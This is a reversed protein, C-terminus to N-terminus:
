LGPDAQCRTCCLRVCVHVWMSVHVCSCMHVCVCMCMCVRKGPLEWKVRLEGTGKEAVEESRGGRERAAGM